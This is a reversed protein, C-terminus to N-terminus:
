EMYVVGNRKKLHFKKHVIIRQTRATVVWEFKPLTVTRKKLYGTLTFSTLIRYMRSPDMTVERSERIIL